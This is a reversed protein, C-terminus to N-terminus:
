LLSSIVMVQKYVSQIYIYQFMSAHYSFHCGTGPNSGPDDMRRMYARVQQAVCASMRSIM